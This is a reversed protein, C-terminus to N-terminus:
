SLQLIYIPNLFRKALHLSSASSKDKLLEPQRTLIGQAKELMKIPFNVCNKAKEYVTKNHRQPNRVFSLKWMKM